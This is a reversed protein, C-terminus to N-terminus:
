EWKLEDLKEPTVFKIKFSKLVVWCGNCHRTLDILNKGGAANWEGNAEFLLVVNPDSEPRVLPNMAYSSKKKDPAFVRKDCPCIFYEEASRKDEELWQKIEDCWVESKPYGKNLVFSALETILNQRCIAKQTPPLIVFIALLSLIGYGVLSTWGFFGLPKNKKSFWLFIVALGILLLGGCGYLLYWKYGPWWVWFYEYNALKRVFAFVVYLSCFYLFVGNFPHGILERSKQPEHPTQKLILSCCGRRIYTILLGIAAGWIFFWFPLLTLYSIGNQNSVIDRTIKEFLSFVTLFGHNFTWLVLRVSIKSVRDCFTDATGMYWILLEEKKLLIVIIPYFVAIIGAIFANRWARREFVFWKVPEKKIYTILLGIAAGWIFFWFPLLALYSMLNQASIRGMTIKEVFVMFIHNFTWLIPKDFVLIARDCIKDVTEAYTNYWVLLEEKNFLIVIIPYLAAIIGGIFASRWAQKELVFYRM